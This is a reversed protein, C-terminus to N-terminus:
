GEEQMQKFGTVHGAAILGCTGTYEEWLACESKLCDADGDNRNRIFLDTNVGNENACAQRLASERFICINM